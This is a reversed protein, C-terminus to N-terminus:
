KLYYSDEIHGTAANVEVIYPNFCYGMFQNRRSRFRIRWVPVDTWGARADPPAAFSARQGDKEWVVDKHVRLPKSPKIGERIDRNSEIIYNQALIIAENMSIGDSYEVTSKRQRITDPSLTTCGAALMIMMILLVNNM